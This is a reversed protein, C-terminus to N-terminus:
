ADNAEEHDLQLFLDEAISILEENSLPPTEMTASRLLLESVLERKDNDDLREFSDLIEQVQATM